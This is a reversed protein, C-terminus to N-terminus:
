FALPVRVLICNVFSSFFAFWTHGSGLALTHYVMFSAYFLQGLIEIRLNMVAAGITDRDSTFLSALEGAFLEVIIILVVSISVTIIMTTYMVKRARDYERAGICQAIMATSGNCVAAIFLQCFNTIKIAVGNGASAIVGYSNIIYTVSLWSISAISMQIACPIGLKLITKLKDLRIYLKKLNLGFVDYSKLVYFLSVVFSIAQAIVTALAAGFTGMDLFGVFVIDLVINIVTTAAICILPDRTNGAGRLAASASNYGLIFIIGLSCTQLYVTAEELAPAGLMVLIPRSILFFAVSLAIGLIMGMSFLTVTSEHCNKRDKAGFYQGILINGGTCIGILVNTIMLMVQSSNNVASLGTAGIFHGVVLMDAMGYLSQLLSSLVLPISYKILQRIISGQTLDTHAM